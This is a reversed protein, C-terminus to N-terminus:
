RVAGAQFLYQECVSVPKDSLVLKSCISNVCLSQNIQCCWSPVFVTWMCVPKDSLVLKSCIAHMYMSQMQTVAGVNHHFLAFLTLMCFGGINHSFFVCLIVMECRTHLSSIEGVVGVNICLPYCSLGGLSSALWSRWIKARAKPWLSQHM